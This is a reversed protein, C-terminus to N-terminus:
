IDMRERCKAAEREIRRELPGATIFECAGIGNLDIPVM